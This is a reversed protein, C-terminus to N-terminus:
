SSRRSWVWSCSCRPSFELRVTSYGSSGDELVLTDVWSRGRRARNPEDLRPWQERLTARAQEFPVDARLRAM